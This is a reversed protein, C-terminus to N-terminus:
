INLLEWLAAIVEEGTEKNAALKLAEDELTKAAEADATTTDIAAQLLNLTEWYVIEEETADLGASLYEDYNEYLSMFGAALYEDYATQAEEIKVAAEASATVALKYLAIMGVRSNVSANALANANANAANLAGLSSAVSGRGNGNSNSNSRNNRGGRNSNDNRNSSSSNGNGNGNSNGSNGQSLAPVVSISVTAIVGSFVMAGLAIASISSQLYRRM